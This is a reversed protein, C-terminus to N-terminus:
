RRACDPPIATGPWSPSTLRGEAGCACFAARCRGAQSSGPSDAIRAPNAAPVPVLIPRRRAVRRASPTVQYLQKAAEMVVVGAFTQFWRAGIEEWATAGALLFPWRMPPVFLARLQREPVFLSEQLMRTLQSGSYPRGQGFPTTDARAWIGRRNPAVVLLRGCGNLVRWCERMLGRRNETMELGHVLLVRDVSMDPLPLDTDEALAVLGAGGEPWGHVGQRAPMVAFVREAEEQFQRLFPTAYGLGLIVQGRTDPWIERVRRRIMRRAVRGLPSRYFERLDVVDSHM